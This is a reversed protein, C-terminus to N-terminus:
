LQFRPLRTEPAAVKARLTATAPNYHKGLLRDYPAHNDRPREGQPVNPKTMWKVLIVYDGEPAGDAVGDKTEYTEVVFTGDDRVVAHPMGSLWRESNADAPQFLLEAGSAPQGGIFLEGQTQVCALRATPAPGCGACMGALLGALLLGPLRFMM